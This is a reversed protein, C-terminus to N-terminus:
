TELRCSSLWRGLLPVTQPHVYPYLIQLQGECEWVNSERPGPRWPSPPVPSTATVTDGDQRAHAEDTSSQVLLGIHLATSAGAPLVIWHPERSNATALWPAGQMGPKPRLGASSRGPGRPVANEPPRHQVASAHPRASEELTFPLSAVPRFHVECLYPNTILITTVPPKNYGAKAHSPGSSLDRANGAFTQLHVVCTGEVDSIGYSQPVQLSLQPCICRANVDVRLPPIPAPPPDWTVRVHGHARTGARGEHPPLPPLPVSPHPRSSEPSEVSAPVRPSGPVTHIHQPSSPPCAPSPARLLTSAGLFHGAQCGASTSSFSLVYLQHAGPQITAHPPQISFPGTSPRSPPDVRVHVRRGCPVLSLAVHAVEAPARTGSDRARPYCAILDRPSICPVSQPGEGREETLCTATEPAIHAMDGASEEPSESTEQPGQATASNATGKDGSRTGETDQGSVAGSPSQLPSAGGSGRLTYTVDTATIGGIGKTDCTGEPPGSDCTEDSECVNAMRQCSIDDSLYAVESDGDVEAGPYGVVGTGMNEHVPVAPDPLCCEIGLPFEQPLERLTAIHHHYTWTVCIPFLTPNHVTITRTVHIGAQVPDM